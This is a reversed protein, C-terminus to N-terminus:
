KVTCLFLSVLLCLTFLNEIATFYLDSSTIAATASLLSAIVVVVVTDRLIQGFIIIISPELAVTYSQYSGKLEMETYKPKHQRPKDPSDCQFQSIIDRYTCFINSGGGLIKSSFVEIESFCSQWKVLFIKLIYCTIMWQLVAICFVIDGYITVYGATIQGVFSSLLVLTEILVM